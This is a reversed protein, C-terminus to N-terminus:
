GTIVWYGQKKGLSDTVNIQAQSLCIKSVFLIIALIKM